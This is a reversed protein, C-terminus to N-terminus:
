RDGIVWSSSEAAAAVAAGIIGAQNLLQAPVVDANVTIRDSFKKFKKSAGGGIIFLDPRNLFELRLLYENFRDGWKKWKLGNEQRAADSAYKEAVMGNLMILGLEQNPVLVGETFLASGLGTGVTIIMVVGKRGKGEGFAMEAIGAADADNLVTAKCGTKEEFLEPVNMGVWSEDINSAIRAIGHQVASPFGVGFPGNYDFHKLINNITKAVAKPTAPQPTEIRYRESVMEGKKVDVLAGKIGSGGVDIGLIEM